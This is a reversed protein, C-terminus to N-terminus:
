YFDNYMKDIYNKDSEMNAPKLNIIVGKRSNFCYIGALLFLCSLIFIIKELKNM